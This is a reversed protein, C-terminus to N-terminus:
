YLFRIRTRRTAAGLYCSGQRENEIGNGVVCCRVEGVAVGSDSWCVFLYIEFDVRHFDM